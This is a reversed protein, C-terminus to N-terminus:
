AFSGLFFRFMSDAYAFFSRTYLFTISSISTSRLPQYPLMRAPLVSFCLPLLRSFGGATCAARRGPLIGAGNSFDLYASFSSAISSGPPAASIIDAYKFFGVWKSLKSLIMTVAFIAVVVFDLTSNINGYSLVGNKRRYSVNTYYCSIMYKVLM